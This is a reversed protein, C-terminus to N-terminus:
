QRSPVPHQRSDRGIPNRGGFPNIFNLRMDGPDANIPVVMHRNLTSGGPNRSVMTVSVALPLKGLQRADWEQVWRSPNDADGPDFYEFLCSSLNQFIPIAESGNELNGEDPLRGFYRAEREVLAYEGRTDQDVDYSVLTLGPSEQFHLSNLSIFRLSTDTGIFLLSGAGAQQPDPPVLLGHASAMQKRVLSMISRHRQNADMFETGRSWSRVSISFVSWLGVAMLAVLTVAVIIELLTFGSQSRVSSNEGTLAM